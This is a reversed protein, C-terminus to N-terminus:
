SSRGPTLARFDASLFLLLSILNHVLVSSHDGEAKKVSDVVPVPGQKAPHHVLGPLQIRHRGCEGKVAAGGGGDRALCHGQEARHLVPSPQHPAAVADLLHHHGVKIAHHAHVPLVKHVPIQRFFQARDMHHGAVVEVEAIHTLAVGPAELLLAGLQADSTVDDGLHLLVADGDRGGVDAGQDGLPLHLPRDLEQPMGMDQSLLHGVAFFDAAAGQTKGRHVQM